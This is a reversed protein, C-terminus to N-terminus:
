TIPIKHLKEEPLKALRISLLGNAYSANINDSDVPEPLYLIREFNGYHIEALRYTASSSPTMARRRGSIKVAKRTIEVQMDEKEAGAIEAVIIIERPTEIMDMPPVWLCDSCRFLPNSTRFMDSLNKEISTENSDSEKGFRIKILEMKANGKGSLVGMLGEPNLNVKYNKAASSNLLL